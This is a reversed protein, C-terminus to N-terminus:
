GSQVTPGPIEGSDADSSARPSEGGTPFKVVGRLDASENGANYVNGKKYTLFSVQNNSM